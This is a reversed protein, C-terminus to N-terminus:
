PHVPPNSPLARPQPPRLPRMELIRDAIIEHRSMGLHGYGGSYTTRRGVIDIYYAHVLYQGTRADHLKMNATPDIGSNFDLWASGGPDFWDSPPVRDAGEAFTSGEFEYLWVGRFRRPEDFRYCAPGGEYVLLGDGTPRGCPSLGFLESLPELAKIIRDRRHVYAEAPISEVYGPACAGLHLLCAFLLGGVKM